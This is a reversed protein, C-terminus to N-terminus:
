VNNKLKIITWENFKDENLKSNKVMTNNRIYDNEKENDNDNEIKCINSNLNSSEKLNLDSTNINKILIRWCDKM